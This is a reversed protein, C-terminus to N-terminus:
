VLIQWHILHLHFQTSVMKIRIRDVRPLSLLFVEDLLLLQQQLGRNQLAFDGIGNILTNQIYTVEEENLLYTALPLFVMVLRLEGANGGVKNSSSCRRSHIQLRHLLRRIILNLFHALPNMYLHRRVLRHTMALASFLLPKYNQM